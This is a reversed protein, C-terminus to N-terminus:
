MEDSVMYFDKLLFKNSDHFVFKQGDELTHFAVFRRQDGYPIEEHDILRIVINGNTECFAGYYCEGSEAYDKWEEDTIVGGYSKDILVGIKFTAVLKKRLAENFSLDFQPMSALQAAYAIYAKQEPIEINLDKWTLFPKPPELYDLGFIETMLKAKEPNSKLLQRYFDQLLEKDDTEIGLKSKKSLISNSTM